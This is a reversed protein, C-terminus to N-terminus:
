KIFPFETVQVILSLKFSICSNMNWSIGPTLTRNCFTNEKYFQKFNLKFTNWCNKKRNKLWFNGFFKLRELYDKFMIHFIKSCRHFGIKKLKFNVTILRWGSINISINKRTLWSAKINNFYFIYSLVYNRFTIIVTILIKKKWFKFNQGKLFM